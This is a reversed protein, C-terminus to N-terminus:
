SQDDGNETLHFHRKFTAWMLEVKLEVRALHRTVKWGVGIVGLLMALNTWPEWTM